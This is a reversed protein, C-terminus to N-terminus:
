KLDDAWEEDLPESYENTIVLSIPEIEVGSYDVFGANYSLTVHPLYDPYDYSAGLEKCLSHRNHLYDSDLLLVLADGFQSLGVSIGIDQPEEEEIWPIDVRSYCITTHLKDRPVPNYLNLQLQLAELADLTANDFKAAIYKGAM